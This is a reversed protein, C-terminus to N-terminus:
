HATALRRPFAPKTITQTTGRCRYDSFVRANGSSNWAPKAEPAAPAPAATQANATLAFLALLPLLLFSPKTMSKGFTTTSMPGPKARQTGFRREAGHGVLSRAGCSADRKAGVWHRAATRTG